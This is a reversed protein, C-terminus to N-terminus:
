PLRDGGVEPRVGSDSGGSRQALREPQHALPEGLCPDRGLTEEVDVAVRDPDPDIRLDIEIDRTELCAEGVIGAAGLGGDLEIM